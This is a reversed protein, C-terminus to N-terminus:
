VVSKRDAPSQKGTPTAIPLVPQNFSSPTFFSERATPFSIPRPKNDDITPHQPKQQSPVDQSPTVQQKVVSPKGNSDTWGERLFAVQVLMCSIYDHICHAGPAKCTCSRMWKGNVLTWTNVNNAIRARMMTDTWQLSVDTPGLNALIRNAINRLTAPFIDPLQTRKPWVDLWAPPEKPHAIDNLM